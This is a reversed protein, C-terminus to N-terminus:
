VDPESLWRKTDMSKHLIRQVVITDGDIDYFIRHSGHPLSRIPPRVDRYVAGIEPYEAIMAFIVDFGLVYAEAENWGFNEAGYALMADIDADAQRSLEIRLVHRM